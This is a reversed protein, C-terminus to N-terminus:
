PNKQKEYQELMIKVIQGVNEAPPNKYMIKKDHDLL